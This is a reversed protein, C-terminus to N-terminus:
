TMAPEIVHLERRFPVDGPDIDTGLERAYRHGEYVATAIIGPAQCDGVRHLTRIGTDPTADLAQVVDHYLSDEPLRATIMVVGDVPLTVERRRLSDHLLAQGTEVALLTTNAHLNVGADHLREQNAEHELTHTLWAAVTAMPTALSVDYGEASLLEGLVSAMYYHDDDFLLVKRGPPRRGALIDDPTLVHAADSGPVPSTLRRGCGDRRWSAGTAIAVHDAGLELIQDADLRSSRYIDVNPMRQIQSMRYDRVRAWAALGPLRSERTVRGGLEEQAEALTVRLGRLGAARAAELGAPGAGVVLLHADAKAPPLTEPHWGKRWEEGFTPNQTCRAPATMQTWGICVNCGICERIDDLRGEEVKRPLFPDAISPRAAGILDVIGRRIASVMADPSTYRGVTSVPKTTVQKVFAVYDEQYGEPAFRSTKSDNAWDSVNVDWLDPLEAMMEIAERGEAHWELGDPGMMEDVAFRVVVGITDGVAERTEELLERFLRLRNELSGGYDDTRQNHRRALFHSPVTGDHGAYVIVIDFGIDRARVAARRHARRYERIDALDMARAQIPALSWNAPRHMPGIPIERSYLNPTDHGNHVLEIGALSGYRHVEEVMRGLYVEDGADWMNTEAYPSADGNALFDCQETCVIGWGGEAKAGRMGIMANPYVRGMGNCHPVQYFRNPATVPGIALPEFLIDYRPDRTM